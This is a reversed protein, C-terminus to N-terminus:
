LKFVFGILGRDKDDYLRGKREGSVARNLGKKLIQRLSTGSGASKEM